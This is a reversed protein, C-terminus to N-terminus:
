QNQFGFYFAEEPMADLRISALMLFREAGRTTPQIPKECRQVRDVPSAAPVM